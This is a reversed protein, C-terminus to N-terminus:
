AAKLRAVAARHLRGLYGKKKEWIVATIGHRHCTDLARLSTGFRHGLDFCCMIKIAQRLKMSEGNM